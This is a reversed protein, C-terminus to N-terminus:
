KMGGEATQMRSGIINTHDVRGGKSILCVTKGIPYGYKIVETGRPLEELAIKHGKPIAEAATFSFVERGCQIWITDLPQVDQILVAITDRSHIQIARKQEM